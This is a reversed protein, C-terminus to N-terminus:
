RCVCARRRQSLFGRFVLKTFRAFDVAPDGRDPQSVLYVKFFLDRLVPWGWDDGALGVGLAELISEALDELRLGLGLVLLHLLSTRDIGRASGRRWLPAALSNATETRPINM